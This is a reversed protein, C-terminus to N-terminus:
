VYERYEGKARKKNTSEPRYDNKITKKKPTSEVPKLTSEATNGIGAAVGIQEMKSVKNDVIKYTDDTSNDEVSITESDKTYNLEVGRREPGRTQYGERQKIQAIKEKNRNLRKEKSEGKKRLIKDFLKVLLALIIGYFILEIIILMCNAIATNAKGEVLRFLPNIGWGFLHLFILDSFIYVIWHIINEFVVM